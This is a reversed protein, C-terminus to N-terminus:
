RGLVRRSKKADICKGENCGLPKDISFCCPTSDTCDEGELKKGDCINAYTEEVIILSCLMLILFSQLKM